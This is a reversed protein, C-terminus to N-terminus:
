PNGDIFEFGMEKCFKYVVAWIVNPFAEHFARAAPRLIM